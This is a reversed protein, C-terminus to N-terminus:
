LNGYQSETNIIPSVSQEDEWRRDTLWGQAMKPTSNRALIKVREKAYRKAGAIIEQALEDDPNIKDWSKRAPEKGKKDAFADWFEDFYNKRKNKVEKYTETQNGNPKRKRETKTETQNYQDYNVITILTTVNSIQHEIQNENQLYSLFRRTKGISWGWRDSLGKMSRGVQGREVTIKTGRKVFSTPQLNALFLLDVWAQGRSFPKDNWLPNDQLKRFLKLFGQQEM